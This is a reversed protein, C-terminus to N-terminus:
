PRNDLKARAENRKLTAKANRPDLELAHNLAQIAEEYRGLEILAEGRYYWFWVNAADLETARVYCTLADNRQGLAAYAQGKGNWARAYTPDAKLARDYAVLADEHRNMQRLIQGKRTWPIAAQADGAVFLGIAEECAELAEERRGLALLPDILNLRPWFLMPAVEIAKEYAAIADEHRKMKELALGKREWTMAVGPELALARDYATLADTYRRLTTLCDGVQGWYWARHEDLSAAKQYCELAESHRRAGTLILGKLFWAGPYNPDLALAHAVADLGDGTAGASYAARGLRTWASPSNPDLTTLRQLVARAEDYRRLTLLMDALRYRYLPRDPALEVGRQYCSLAEHRRGQKELAEGKGIWAPVYEANLTLAHNYAEVAESFRGLERYILGLRLWVGKYDPKVRAAQQVVPLADAPRDAKVLVDALRRWVGMINARLRSAQMYAAAASDYQKLAAHADGKAIWAETLKSDLGLAAELAVLGDAPRGQAVMIVGQRARSAAHHPDIMLAHELPPLAEELYGGSFLLGALYFHAWVDDPKLRAATEYAARAQEFESSRELAIGKERWAWQFNPDRELATDLCTLADAPRNLVRLTRGKRAWVWASGPAMELARDYTSLAEEGFGLETLSYAQDMLELVALDVPNSDLAPLKGTLDEFILALKDRVAEWTQPREDPSKALCRLTLNRLPPSIRDEVGPPFAPIRQLHAEIWEVNTRADFLREGTLMEYLIAGFAYIDSRLDVNLGQCQEPSMYPATGVVTGARTLRYSDPASDPDSLEGVQRSEQTEFASDAARVLGFDTVKAIGDHRVLINAPKLDRHVLGPVKQVAHLMGMCIHLSFEVAREVTIQNHEIWSKLDTGLGEPGSIYEMIIHPRSRIRADGFTEVKRAQVINPHKELLIWTHAEHTFRAKARENDLHRGQFTKLAVSQRSEHDYCLYIIGMGGRLIDRVEYRGGIHDGVMYDGPPPAPEAPVPAAGFNMSFPSAGLPALPALPIIPEATASLSPPNNIPSADEGDNTDAVQTQLDENIAPRLSTINLGAAATLNIEASVTLDVRRSAAIYHTALELAMDRDVDTVQESELETLAWLAVACNRASPILRAMEMVWRIFASVASEALAMDRAIQTNEMEATAVAIRAIQGARRYAQITKGVYLMMLRENSLSLIACADGIAFYDSPDEVDRRIALRGMQRIHSNPDTAFLDTYDGNARRALLRKEREPTLTIPQRGTLPPPPFPNIPSSLNSMDTM